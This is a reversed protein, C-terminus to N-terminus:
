FFYKGDPDLNKLIAKDDACNLEDFENSLNNM